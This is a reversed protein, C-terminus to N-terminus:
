RRHCKARINDILKRYGKLLRKPKKRHKRTIKDFTQQYAATRDEGKKNKCRAQRAFKKKRLAEILERDRKAFYVDEEAMGKLKLKEVIDSM